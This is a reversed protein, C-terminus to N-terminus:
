RVARQVIYSFHQYQQKEMIVDVMLKNSAHINSFIKTKGLDKAIQDIFTHLTTYIGQQRHSENVYINLVLLVKEAMTSNLFAGAIVENDAELLIGLDLQHPDAAGKTENLVLMKMKEYESALHDNADYYRYTYNKYLGLEQLHKM